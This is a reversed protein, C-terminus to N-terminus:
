IHKLKSPSPNHVFKCCILRVIRVACCVPQSWHANHIANCQMTFQLYQLIWLKKNLNPQKKTVACVEVPSLDKGNWTCWCRKWRASSVQSSFHTRSIRCQVNGTVGNVVLPYFIAHSRPRPVCNLKPHNSLPVGLGMQMQHFTVLLINFDLLRIYHTVKTYFVIYNKQM